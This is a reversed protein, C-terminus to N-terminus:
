SGFATNVAVVPTLSETNDIADSHATCRITSRRFEIPKTLVEAVDQLLTKGKAASLYVDEVVLITSM